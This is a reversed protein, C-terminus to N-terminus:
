LSYETNKPKKTKAIMKQHMPPLIVSAYGLRPESSSNNFYFVFSFCLAYMLILCILSIHKISIYARQQM